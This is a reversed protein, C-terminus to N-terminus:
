EPSEAIVSESLLTRAYTANTGSAFNPDLSNARSFAHLAGRLNNQSVLVNGIANLAEVNFTRPIQSEMSNELDM